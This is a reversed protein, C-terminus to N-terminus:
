ANPNTTLTYGYDAAIQEMETTITGFVTAKININGNTTNIEAGSVFCSNALVSGVKSFGIEGIFGFLQSNEEPLIFNNCTYLVCESGDDKYLPKYITYNKFHYDFPRVFGDFNIFKEDIKHVVINECTITTDPKAFGVTQGLAEAVIWGTGGNFMSDIDINGIYKYSSGFISSEVEKVTEASEVGNIKVAMTEGAEAMSFGTIVTGSTNLVYDVYTSEEYHTRNKVYDAATSDNQNWDAQVQEPMDVAEWETPQGNEDVATIKVTQGVTAGTINLPNSKLSDVYETTALTKSVSDSTNTASVNYDDDVTIKFKKTSNSTSSALFLGTTSTSKLIFKGTGATQGSNGENYRAYLGASPAIFSRTVTETVPLSCNGASAVVIFLGYGTCNNGATITSYQYGDAKTGIFSIVDSPSPNFDSIKYYDYANFVFTDRGSTQKDFTFTAVSTFTDASGFAGELVEKNKDAAAQANEATTQAVEVDSKTAVNEPLFKEDLKKLEGINGDWTIEPDADAGLAFGTILPVGNGAIFYTGKEPFTLREITVNDELAVVVFESALYCDYGANSISLLEKKGAIIITASAGDSCDGTPVSDSVKYFAIDPINPPPVRVLLNDYFPRNKVYDAATSDNQNWDAQPLNTVKESLMSLREGVAAADAAQGAKTLTTDIKCSGFSLELEAVLEPATELVGRLELM